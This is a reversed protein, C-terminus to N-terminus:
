RCGSSVQQNTKGTTQSGHNARCDFELTGSLDASDCSKLPSAWRTGPRQLLMMGGVGSPKAGCHGSLLGRGRWRESNWLAGTCCTCFGEGQELIARAALDDRRSRRRLLTERM